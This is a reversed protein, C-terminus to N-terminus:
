NADIHRAIGASDREAGTLEAIREVARAMWRERSMTRKMFIDFLKM